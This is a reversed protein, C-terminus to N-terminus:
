LEWYFILSLRAVLRERLGRRALDRRSIGRSRSFADQFLGEVKKILADEVTSLNLEDNQFFSRPDFNASGLSVWADDILIAKAHMMSPQYEYIEVGGQLLEDYLERSAYRVFQKDNRHGMTIVRVDLGRRKAAVLVARTNRDPLFYPSSLWVRERAAQVLAQYLSRLGSDRWTPDEGASVLAIAEQVRSEPQPRVGSLDVTGGADLWHQLFLGNLRAIVSGQFEVEYDYWPRKYGEEESGDWDDSVGAGGIFAKKRDILLLKRHNRRLYYFPDRWSFPNFIRVEVGASRLRRWYNEPISKAGYKDALLRVLVGQSAKQVIAKAFDEARRGPTMIYTEFEISHEASRIAELRADFIQEAEVWFGATQAHEVFSDSLSAITIAFSPADPPPLNNARYPTRRRFFGRAYLVLVILFIIVTLSLAIAVIWTNM